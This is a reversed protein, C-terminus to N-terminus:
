QHQEKTRVDSVQMVLSVLQDERGLTDTFFFMKLAAFLVMNLIKLETRLLRQERVLLDIRGLLAPDCM